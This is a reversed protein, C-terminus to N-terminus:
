QHLIKRVEHRTESGVRKMHTGVVCHLGYWKGLVCEYTDADWTVCSLDVREVVAFDDTSDGNTIWAHVYLLTCRKNM